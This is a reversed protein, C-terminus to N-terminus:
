AHDGRSGFAGRADLAAIFNDCWTATDMCDGPHPSQLGCSASHVTTNNIERITTDTM